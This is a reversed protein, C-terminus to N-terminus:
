EKFKYYGANAGLVFIEEKVTRVIGDPSMTLQGTLGSYNSTAYLKEKICQSDYDSLACKGIASGVIHMTDYGTASFLYLEPAKGFREDFETLFKESLEKNKPEWFSFYMGKAAGSSNRYFTETSTTDMGLFTTNIGLERAQKIAFGANDYGLLLIVDLQKQKAKQLISRFDNEEAGFGEVASIVGGLKLFDREFGNKVLSSFGDSKDFLIVANRAQLTTYAFEALTSGVGEDYVGVGFVWEGAAAIEDSTDVASLLIKKEREAIPALTLFDSYGTVLTASVENIKLLKQYGNLTEMKEGKNDEVFLIVRKGNIGGNKNIEDVALQIGELNAKGFSAMGGTLPGVWGIKVLPEQAPLLFMGAPNYSTFFLVAIIGLAIALAFIIKKDM